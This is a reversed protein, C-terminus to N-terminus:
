DYLNYKVKTFAARLQKESDKTHFGIAKTPQMKQELRDLRHKLSEIQLHQHYIVKRAAEDTIKVMLSENM